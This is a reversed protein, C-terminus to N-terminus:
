KTAKPLRCARAPLKYFFGKGTPALAVFSTRIASARKVSELHEDNKTDAVLFDIEYVLEQDIPKGFFVKYVKWNIGNTLVVWEIGKNAAYDIAQKVHSDKLEIGIAKAELLLQVKGDLVTALDCYTGRIAHESTIEQFKDYGFIESLM